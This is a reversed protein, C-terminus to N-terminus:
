CDFTAWSGSDVVQITLSGPRGLGQAQNGAYTIHFCAGCVAGGTFMEHNVACYHKQEIYPTHATPADLGGMKADAFKCSGGDSEFGVITDSTDAWMSMSGSIADALAARLFLVMAFSAM